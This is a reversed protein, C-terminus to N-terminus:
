DYTRDELRTNLIMSMYRSNKNLWKVSFDCHNEALGRRKLEDYKEELIQM